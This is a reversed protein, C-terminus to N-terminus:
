LSTVYTIMLPLFVHTMLLHHIHTEPSRAVLIDTVSMAIELNGGHLVTWAILATMATVIGRVTVIENEKELPFIVSVTVYGIGIVKEIENVTATVTATATATVIMTEYDYTM